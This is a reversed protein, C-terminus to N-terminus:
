LPRRRLPSERLPAATAPATRNRPACSRWACASARASTSRSKGPMMTLSTRMGPVSPRCSSSLSSSHRCAVQRHDQDGPMAIHGHRHLRQTLAGSSKISFGKVGLAQEVAHATGQILATQDTLVALQALLHGVLATDLALQDTNGPRHFVQAPLDEFQGAGRDVDQDAPSVPLPLSRTRASGARDEARAGLLAKAASFQAAIGSVM